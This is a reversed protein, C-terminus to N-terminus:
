AELSFRSASATDFMSSDGSLDVLPIPMATPRESAFDISASDGAPGGTFKECAKRWTEREVHLVRLAEELMTEDANNNAEILRQFIFLYVSAMKGVLNANCDTNLAGLLEGMCAQAHILAECAAGRDDERWFVRAKECSRIAAEVVMLQLKQPTATMVEASLYQNRVSFDM